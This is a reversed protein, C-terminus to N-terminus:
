NDENREVSDISLEVYGEGDRIFDEVDSESVTDWLDRGHMPVKMDVTFTGTVRVTMNPDLGMEELAESVVSCFDNEIALKMAVERVTNKFTNLDRAASTARDRAENMGKLNRHSERLAHVLAREPWTQCDESVVKYDNRDSDNNYLLFGTNSPKWVKQFGYGHEVVLMYGMTPHLLLAGISFNVPPPPVTETTSSTETMKSEEKTEINLLAKVNNKDIASYTHGIISSDDVLSVHGVRLHTMCDYKMEFSSGCRYVPLETCGSIGCKAGEPIEITAM